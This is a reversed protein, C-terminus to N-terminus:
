SGALAADFRRQFDALDDRNIDSVARLRREGRVWEIVTYGRQSAFRPARPAAGDAPSVFLDILHQRQRYVLVAVPRRDIYDLRGGALAFGEAGLDIVPPSLDLRGNFWPKVTHRDSSLVDMAHGSILARIHASVIEDGAAEPAPVVMRYTIASSLVAVVALSAAIALGARWRGDRWAPRRRAALEVGLRAALAPPARHRTLGRALGAHLALAAAQRQRCAPCGAVHHALAAASGTDLEGDLGPEILAAARDCEM